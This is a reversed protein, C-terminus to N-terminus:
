VKASPTEELIADIKKNLTEMDPKTEEARAPADSTAAGETARPASERRASSREAQGEESLPAVYPTLKYTKKEAGAPLVALQHRLVEDTLRIQRDLEQIAAPEVTLHALVYVGHRQRKVPYALKMRALMEHRSVSGGAKTIMGSVKEMIGSVEADTYSTPVLYFLEYIM